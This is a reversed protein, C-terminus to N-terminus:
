RADRLKPDFRERLWDGLLNVSLVTLLIAVGPVLSMWWASGLYAQGEAIMGGWSPTPPPIGAGLYSLSSELLIVEGLNISILVMVTSLVNPFIHVALIRLNSCGIVKAQLVYDREKLAIVESRVVRAFRTWIVMSIAIIISQMGVGLTVAFLLGLFLTPITLLADVLRSIVADVIGGFYGAMMGLVTGIGGGIAATVLVVSLTVRAGYLLRTLLDRGLTDTGLLHQLSPPQLKDGLSAVIPDYPTLWPALVATLIFVGLIILTPWPLRRRRSPFLYTEENSAGDADILTDLETVTM